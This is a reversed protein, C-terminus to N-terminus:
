KLFGVAVTNNSMEDILIFAGTSKNKEYPDYVLESATSLFVDAIDNLALSEANDIKELSSPHIVSKMADIKATVRRVGHQLIYRGGAASLQAPHENLWCLRAEFTRSLVPMDNEKVLMDGRSVDLDKELRISVSEGARVSSVEKGVIDIGSVVTTTHSPLVTVIDGASIAGSSIKGAYGRYDHFKPLKSRLVHQVQFRFPLSDRKSDVDLTELLELLPKGNYWPTGSSHTTINDGLTASLPIFFLNSPPFGLRRAFSSLEEVVANFRTEDYEVLDMKNICVIIASLRLIHSIFFHRHTQLLSGNRADVLILAVHSTSAGTVMNRTYQEHGPTDAVIFKRKSTQFFVHAVDITIGQEREALLGDTLLSFDLTDFGRRKGARLADDIKDAPVSQTEYLLRGILTSKGDDVSGTTAIRLVDKM